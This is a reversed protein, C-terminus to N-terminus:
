ADVVKHLRHIVVAVCVKSPPHRGATSRAMTTAALRSAAEVHHGLAIRCSQRIAGYEGAMTTGVYAIVPRM